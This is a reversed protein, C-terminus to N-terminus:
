YPFTSLYLYLSFLISPIKGRALFGLGRPYDISNVNTIEPTLCVFLVSLNLKNVALIVFTEKLTRASFNNAENRVTYHNNVEVM